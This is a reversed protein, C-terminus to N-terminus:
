SRRGGLRGQRALEELSATVRALDIGVQTWGLGAARLEDAIQALRVHDGPRRLPSRSVLDYLLSADPQPLRGDLLEVADVAVAQRDGGGLVLRVGPMPRDRLREWFFDRSRKGARRREGM